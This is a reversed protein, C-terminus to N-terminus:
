RLKRWRSFHESIAVNVKCTASQRL